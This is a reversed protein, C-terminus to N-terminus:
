CASTPGDERLFGIRGAAETAPVEALQGIRRVKGRFHDSFGLFSNRLM